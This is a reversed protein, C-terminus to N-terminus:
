LFSRVAAALVLVVGALGCAWSLMLVPSPKGIRPATAGLVNNFLAFVGLLLNAAALQTKGISLFMVAFATLVSFALWGGPPSFGGSATAAAKAASRKFRMLPIAEPEILAPDVVGELHYGFFEGLAAEGLELPHFPFPYPADENEDEDDEDIAPHQGAWYPAEFAQRAGIDELVGSDPSLSLARVLKGDVWQAYAFWDVVSHMAHLHLTRDAAADIFGQPLQSPYDIAFESAAVVCVGPFCGIHIEDDPPNTSSLDVDGLRELTDDPFLRAALATTAEVDLPPRAKLADRASADAYVLMWTKAGM